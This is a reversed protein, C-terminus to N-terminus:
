AGADPAPFAGRPSLEAAYQALAAQALTRALYGNQNSAYRFAALAHENRRLGSILAVRCDDLAAVYLASAYFWDSDGDDSIPASGYASIAIDTLERIIVTAALLDATTMAHEEPYATNDM